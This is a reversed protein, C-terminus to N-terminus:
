ESGSKKVIGALGECRGSRRPCPRPLSREWGMAEMEKALAALCRKTITYIGSYRYGLRRATERSDLGLGFKLRLLARWRTPLRSIAMTLDRRMMAQEQPPSQVRARSELFSDPATALWSRKRSRWFMLCRQNLTGALWAEPNRVEDRRTLYTLYTQQVLDDVDQPPIGHFGAIVRARSQFKRVLGDLAPDVESASQM